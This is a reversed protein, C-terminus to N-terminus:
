YEEKIERILTKVFKPRIRLREAEIISILRTTALDVRDNFIFYNYNEMLDIENYAATFRKDIAEPTETGRGVIRNRLEEMTPPLIFIFVGEPYQEKVKLAGQIDIELLVDMGKELQEMVFAKPTGYYNDYVKAFELLEGNQIMSEFTKHDTFFYNVGETEGVRPARTTMSVSLVIDERLKMLAKCITGKGVGSPGSVVLLLGRRMM